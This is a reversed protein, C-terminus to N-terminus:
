VGIKQLKLTYNIHLLSNQMKEFWELQNLSFRLKSTESFIGYHVTEINFQIVKVFAPRIKCSTRIALFGISKSRGM